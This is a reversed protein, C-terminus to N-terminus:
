TRDSVGRSRDPRQRQPAAPCVSSKRQESDPVHAHADDSSTRPQEGRQSYRHSCGVHSGSHGRASALGVTRAGDSFPVPPVSGFDRDRPQYLILLFRM